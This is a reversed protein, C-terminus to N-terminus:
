VQSGFLLNVWLWVDSSSPLNDLCISLERKSKDGFHKIKTLNQIPYDLIDGITEIGNRKLVNKIRNSVHLKDIDTKYINKYVDTNSNEIIYQQFITEM